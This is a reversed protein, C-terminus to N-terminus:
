LSAKFSADATVYAAFDWRAANTPLKCVAICSAYKARCSWRLLLSLGFVCSSFRRCCTSAVM